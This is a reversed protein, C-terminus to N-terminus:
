SAITGRLGRLGAEGRLTRQIESPAALGAEQFARRMATANSYGVRRAVEAITVGPASSLLLALRLRLRRTADRWGDGLGPTRELFAEIDRELQRESLGIEVGVEQLTPSTYMREVMPRIAQWLRAFRPDDDYSFGERAIVGARLLSELLAVTAEHFRDDDSAHEAMARAHEFAEAGVDLARPEHAPTKGPENQVHIEIGVYPSGDARRVLRAEAPVGPADDAFAIAIPGEFARESSSGALSSFRFRGELLVFLSSSRPTGLSEPLFRSDYVLGGTRTNLGVFVDRGLAITNSTTAGRITTTGRALLVCIAHHRDPSERALSM